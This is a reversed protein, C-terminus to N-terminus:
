LRAGLGAVAQAPASELGSLLSYLDQAGEAAGARGMCLAFKEKRHAETLPKHPHGYAAYRELHVVSGDDMYFDLKVPAKGTFAFRRAIEEDVEYDIKEMFKQAAGRLVKEDTFTDFGIGGDLLMAAIAYEMSFKAQVADKPKHCTLERPSLLSVGARVRRVREPDIKHEALYESLVDIAPHSGSCCPYRKLQFGGDIVDWVRGIEFACKEPNIPGPGAFCAFFGDQAELARPNGTVGCAALQACEIGTMAALGAHLAKAQSGFNSKIGSARSAALALANVTDPESLGYASCAAAAAGFVGLTITPHWGNQSIMPCTWKGIQCETEIGAIYARLLREGDLGLEQSLALAAPAVPCSPHGLMTDACDYFDLAHSAAGNVLASNVADIRVDSNVLVSRGPRARPAIFAKANEVVPMDFGAMACAFWDCFSAKAADLAPRPVQGCTLETIFRAIPVLLAQTM